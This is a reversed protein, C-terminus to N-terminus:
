DNLNKYKEEQEKEDSPKRNTKKRKPAYRKIYYVILVVILVAGFFLSSFLIWDFDITKNTDTDEDKPPTEPTVSSDPTDTYKKVTDGATAAKFDDESITAFEVDDFIAYGTTYHSTEGEVYGLGLEIVASSIATSAETAIYYDYRVYETGNVTFRNENDVNFKNPINLKIYASAGEPLGYTKAWVSIRHFTGKALTKGTSKFSYAGATKNNIVLLNTGTHPALAAKIADRDAPDLLNFNYSDISLIGTNYEATDDKLVNDSGTWSSTPTLYSTDEHSSSLGFSDVALEVKLVNNDTNEADFAKKDITKQTVSDFFVVGGTAIDAEDADAPKNNQGLYLGLQVSVNSVGVKIRFTYKQWGNTQTVATTNINTFSTNTDYASDAILYVSAKTEGITKVMVSIEYYSDATLTVTSSNKYGYSVFEKGTEDPCALMLAYPSGCLEYLDKDGDPNTFFLNNLANVSMLGTQSAISSKLAENNINVIGGVGKSPTIISTWGSPVGFNKSFSGNVMGGTALGETKNYDYNAFSGNTFSNSVTDNFNYKKAYSGSTSASSFASYTNETLSVNSVYAAGQFLTTSTWKTGSGFSISFTIDHSKSDTYFFCVVEKYGNLDDTADTTNLNAFSALVDDGSKIEIGVGATSQVDTTKVWASFRYATYPQLTLTNKNYNLKYQTASPAYVMMVEDSFVRYPIGSADLTKDGITIKDDCDVIQLSVKSTDFGNYRNAVPAGNGDTDTAIEWGTLGTTSDFYGNQIMNDSKSTTLDKVSKGADLNDAADVADAFDTVIDLKNVSLKDFFATGSTYSSNDEKKNTGLWFQFYFQSAVNQNSYVYFSYLKWEGNTNIGTIEIDDSSDDSAMSLVLTAGSSSVDVTKVWMSIQYATGREFVMMNSTSFGIYSATSNSIMYVNGDSGNPTSPNETLGLGEKTAEFYQANTNVQNYVAVTSTGKLSYLNPKKNTVFDFEANPVQTSVKKVTSSEVANEYTDQSSSPIATLTVNDFFAYGSTLYESTNASTTDGKGLGLLLYATKSANVAGQIYFTYTTWEGNTDIGVYESYLSSSGFLYVRAGATKPLDASAKSNGAIDQTKVDVTLVYDTNQAISFSSSTYHYYSAEKSYIMLVNDDKNYGESTNPNKSFLPLNNWKSKASNYIEDTLTIVGSVTNGAAPFAKSTDSPSIQATTPGVGNWKVPVYPQLKDEADSAPTNVSGFNGNSFSPEATETKDSDSDGPDTTEDKCAVMLVMSSVLMLILLLTLFKRLANKNM